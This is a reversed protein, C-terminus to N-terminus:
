KDRTTIICSGEREGSGKGVFEIEVRGFKVERSRGVVTKERRNTWNRETGAREMQTPRLLLSLSFFPFFRAVYQATPFPFFLFFSPFFHLRNAIRLAYAFVVRRASLKTANFQVLVAKTATEEVKRGFERGLNTGCRCLEPAKRLRLTARSALSTM